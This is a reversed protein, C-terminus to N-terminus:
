LCWPLGRMSLCEKHNGNHTRDTSGFQPLLDEDIVECGFPKMDGDELMAVTPSPTLSKPYRM